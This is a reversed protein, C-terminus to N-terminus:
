AYLYFSVVVCFLLILFSFGLSSASNCTQGDKCKWFTHSTDPPAGDNRYCEDDSRIEYIVTDRCTAQSNLGCGYGSIMHCLDGYQSEVKWHSCASTITQCSSSENALPKYCGVNYCAQDSEWGINNLYCRCTSPIAYHIGNGCVKESCATYNCVFNYDRCAAQTIPLQVVIFALAILLFSGQLIPRIQM